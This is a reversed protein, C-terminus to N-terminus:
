SISVDLLAQESPTAGEAVNASIRPSQLRALLWHEAYQIVKRNAFANELQRRKTQPRTHTYVATMALSAGPASLGAPVHGMLENRILPDVNADQLITAFKHRLTKPATIEGMGIDKTVRLFEKRISDNDVIGLDRWITGCAELHEARSISGGGAAERRRIRLALERQLSTISVNSITGEYGQSFRRQRFVPGTSRGATVRRLVNNLVPALPIDREKRTKIQWGLHPKNRVYLWGSELDLDDPLLLHALEGARMGTLLLTLFVPFPWDDCAQLFSCEQEEQFVIVPRFTEVPIRSIEITRFPNEAYPSLHRNKHAYNFLSCCTELIYKIGTDLMPRKRAKRHGNPAVRTTRLYHVFEMAQRPHFECVHRISCNKAVFTLLHETAARYRRITAVSSRRVHEHHDIWQQRLDPMSIPEYSLAAPAGFELQGNIQAAM